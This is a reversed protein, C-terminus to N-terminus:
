GSPYLNWVKDICFWLLFARMHLGLFPMRVLISYPEPRSVPAKRRDSGATKLKSAGVELVKGVESFKLLNLYIKRMRLCQNVV